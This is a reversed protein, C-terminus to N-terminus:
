MNTIKVIAVSCKINYRTLLQYTYHIVKHLIIYLIKSKRQIHRFLTTIIYNYYFHNFVLVNSSHFISLRHPHTPSLINVTSSHLLSHPPYRHARPSSPPGSTTLPYTYPTHSWTPHSIPPSPHQPHDGIPPLLSWEQASKAAWSYGM